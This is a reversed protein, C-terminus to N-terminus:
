RGVTWSSLEVLRPVGSLAAVAGRGTNERQGISCSRMGPSTTLAAVNVVTGVGSM